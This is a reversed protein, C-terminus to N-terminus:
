NGDILLVKEKGEIRAWMGEPLVRRGSGHGYPLGCFVPCNVRDALDKLVAEFLGEEHDSRCKEFQGFLVGAVQSFIGAMKLQNLMRDVRYPSENVDELFLLAGTLDPLYRTGVLSAVLSLCGGLLPGGAYGGKLAQLGEIPPFRGELLAAWLTDETVPHMGKFTVDTCLAVGTYSVLQIKSFLGFQLATTDSFGVIAKPYRHVLEWDILDLMRASGYGGRAVFIVRVEPDAFMGNLDKARDLDGGALYRNRAYLNEGVKVRYGRNRFYDLAPQLHEPEIWGSPAIVGVTDGHELKPPFILYGELFFLPM